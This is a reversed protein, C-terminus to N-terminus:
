SLKTLKDCCPLLINSETGRNRKRDDETSPTRIYLIIRSVHVGVLYSMVSLRRVKKRYCAKLRLWDIELRGLRSSKRRPYRGLGNNGTTKSKQSSIMTEKPILIADLNGTPMLRSCVLNLTLIM